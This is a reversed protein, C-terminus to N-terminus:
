IIIVQYVPHFSDTVQMTANFSGMMKQSFEVWPSGQTCDSGEPNKLSYCPTNFHYSGEQKFAEILPKALSSTTKKSNDLIERDEQTEIDLTKRMHAAIITTARDRAEENTIEAKIDNSKVMGYPKGEGSFQFHNM